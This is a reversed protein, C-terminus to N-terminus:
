RQWRQLIYSLTLVILSTLFAWITPIRVKSPAYVVFTAMELLYILAGFKYLDESIKVKSTSEYITFFILSTLFWGLYNIWPIGFWNLSTITEWIWADWSTMIPDVALDIIVMLFSAFLIRQSQKKFFQYATLYSFFGFIGWTLPVSLAVGYIQPQLNKYYYCGFPLCVRTGILEAFFGVILATIYLRPLSKWLKRSSIIIAALYLFTYFPSRKLLNALIILSIVIKVDREM